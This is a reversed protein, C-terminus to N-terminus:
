FRIQKNDLILFFNNFEIASIDNWVSFKFGFDISKLKVTLFSNLKMTSNTEFM